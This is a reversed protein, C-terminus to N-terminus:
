EPIRGVSEVPAFNAEAMEEGLYSHCCPTDRSLLGSVLQATYPRIHFLEYNHNSCLSILTSKKSIGYPCLGVPDIANAFTNIM